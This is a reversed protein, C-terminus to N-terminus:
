DVKGFASWSQVARNVEVLHWPYASPDDRRLTRPKTTLRLGTHEGTPANTLRNRHAVLGRAYIGADGEVLESVVHANGRRREDKVFHPVLDAKRSIRSKKFTMDTPYFFYEGQRLYPERHDLPKLAHFAAEVTTVPEPLESLFYSGEDMGMLGYRPAIDSDKVEKPAYKILVAGPRHARWSIGGEIEYSKSAWITWGPGLDPIYEASAVDGSKHEDKWFDVVTIDGRIFKVRVGPTVGTMGGIASVSVTCYNQMSNRLAHQTRNLHQRTSVSPTDGNVVALKGTPGEVWWALPWHSGYSWLTRDWLQLNSSRRDWARADELWDRVNDRQSM